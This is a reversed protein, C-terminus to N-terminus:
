ENRIILSTHFFDNIHTEPNNEDVVVALVLLGITNDTGFPVSAISYKGISFKAEHLNQETQCRSNFILPPCRRVHLVWVRLNIRNKLIDRLFRQLVYRITM